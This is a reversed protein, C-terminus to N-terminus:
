DSLTFTVDFGMSRFEALSLLNAYPLQVERVDDEPIDEGNYAYIGKDKNGIIMVGKSKSVFISFKDSRDMYSEKIFQSVGHALLADREMEGLRLGGDRSRGEAPQRTLLQIPGRERAHIKDIVMHKLRQYYTPGTFVKCTFKKGTFGCYMEDGEPNFGYERLVNYYSQMDHEIFPTGDQMVGTAVCIKGMLTELMKAYTMRSPLGHPNMILDIYEGHKTFPMDSQDLMLGCCGKQSHRSAFKDGVQPQRLSAVRVKVFENGDGNIPKISRMSRDERKSISRDIIGSENHKVTTSIDKFKKVGVTSKDSPENITIIKGIVVEGEDVISSEIPFGDIDVANYSVDKRDKTEETAVLMPNRYIEVTNSSSKHKHKEDVYTRFYLSNFMGRQVASKMITVADEQDYGTCSLYAMIVQTGSPVQDMLTYKMTRTSVMPKHGYVLVHALTDMRYNYNLAYYGIAQKGMSSQYCNRPSQNHNAFPIMQSIVGKIMMPNIECHTYRIFTNDDPTLETLKHATVAVMSNELENTDVYEIVGGNLGTRPENGIRRGCSGDVLQHWSHKLLNHTMLLKNDNVIFLPRTYRGGDTQIHIESWEIYLAISTLPNIVANRKLLVLLDYLQKTRDNHIWGYIDGNVFILTGNSIANSDNDFADIIKYLKYIDNTTCKDLFTRVPLDPVYISVKCQMALNKVIGIQQGEPTEDVCCMGYHTMDLRRPKVMKNTSQVLPSQIRRTHSLSGPYSNRNLVQAVGKKNSDAVNKLTSWNGTSLCYMIKNHINSSTIYKKIDTLLIDSDTSPLSVSSTSKRAFNMIRTAIESAGVQKMITKGLLIYNTRIIQAILPGDLDLRKNSYHDRDNHPRVEFFSEILRRVTYGLFIAKKIPSFGVHPFIDRNLIDKICKLEYAMDQADKKAKSDATCKYQSPTSANSLAPDLLVKKVESPMDKLYEMIKPSKNKIYTLAQIQTYICLTHAEQASRALFNHYETRNKDPLSSLIYKYIDKDSLIGFARFIIFLPFEEKSSLSPIKVKVTRGITQGSKPSTVEKMLYVKTTKIPNFRQDVSSKIEVEHTHKKNKVQAWAYVTNEAPREQCVIVKEGGNVIFYGGQDLTCEGMECRVEDPKEYLHCYKSRVMIPIRMLPVKYANLDNMQYKSFTGDSIDIRGFSVRINVFIPSTYSIDRLRAENPYLPKIVGSNEQILPKSIYFKELHIRIQEQEHKSGTVKIDGVPVIIPNNREILQPLVNDILDNFSEIKHEVLSVKDFYSDLIKWTDKDWNFEM